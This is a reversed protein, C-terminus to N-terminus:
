YVKKSDQLLDPMWIKYPNEKGVSEDGNFSVGYSAVSLYAYREGSTVPLVEHTGLYNSPYIAVSGAKPCYTYNINPFRLEGGEYHEGHNNLYLNISANNYLSVQNEPIEGWKHPVQDDCHPGIRQDVSYAAIHGNPRWWSTTAADPFLKCYQVLATYIGNEFLDILDLWEQKPKSQSNLGKLDLLRQPAIKIDNLDFKFGTKNKAYKIGNEEHITFTEEQNNKLWTIYEVLTKNDISIVDTFIVVGMGVHEYKM